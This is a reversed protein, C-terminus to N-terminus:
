KGSSTGYVEVMRKWKKRTYPRLKLESLQGAIEDIAFFKLTDVVRAYELFRVMLWFYFSTNKREVLCSRLMAEDTFQPYDWFAAKLYNLSDDEGYGLIQNEEKRTLCKGLQEKPISPWIKQVLLNKLKTRRDTKIVQRKKEELAQRVAETKTVGMLAAVEGALNEVESNKIDLGM